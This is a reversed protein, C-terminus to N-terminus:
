ERVPLVQIDYAHRITRCRIPDELEFEFRDAPRVGGIAGLTGSFMVTGEGLQGGGTYRRILDAPTMMAAVSGEQYLERKGGTVAWSRLKLSDWHDAVEAFPWLEAAIPKDCMQKSVAVSYAEVKRDTHDSATGVWLSGRAQVLLFEVEGSSEYGLAEIRDGTTLRVASVRYFIPVSSPRRVGLEGLEAIHKEVVERNRGTWGAVVAQSVDLEAWETSSETTLQFGLFKKM